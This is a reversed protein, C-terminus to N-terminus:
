SPKPDACRPWFSAHHVTTLHRMQASLPSPPAHSFGKHILPATKGRGEPYTRQYQAFRPCDRGFRKKLPNRQIKASLFKERGKVRLAAAGPRRWDGECASACFQDHPLSLKTEAKRCDFIGYAVPGLQLTLSRGRLRVAISARRPHARSGFRTGRVSWSASSALAMPKSAKRM